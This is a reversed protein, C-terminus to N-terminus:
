GYTHLVQDDSGPTDDIFPELNQDLINKEIVKLHFETHNLSRTAAIEECSDGIACLANEGVSLNNSELM